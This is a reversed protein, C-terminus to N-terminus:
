YFAALRQQLDIILHNSILRYNLPLQVWRQDLLTASIRMRNSTKTSKTQKRM